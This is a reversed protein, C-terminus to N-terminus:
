EPKYSTDISEQEIIRWGTRYEGIRADWGVYPQTDEETMPPEDIIIVQRARQDRPWLLEAASRLLIALLKRM